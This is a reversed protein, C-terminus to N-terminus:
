RAAERLMAFIGDADLRGLTLAATLLKETDVDTGIIAALSEAERFVDLDGEPGYNAYVIRAAAETSSGERRAQEAVVAAKAADRAVERLSQQLHAWRLDRPLNTSDYGAFHEDAVERAAQAPTKTSM